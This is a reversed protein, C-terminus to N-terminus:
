EKWIQMVIFVLKRDLCKTIKGKQSFNYKYAEIDEATAKTNKLSKMIM